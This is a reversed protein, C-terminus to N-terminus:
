PFETRQSHSLDHMRVGSVAEQQSTLHVSSLSDSLKSLLRQNQTDQQAILTLSIARLSNDNSKCKFLGFQLPLSERGYRRDLDILGSAVM